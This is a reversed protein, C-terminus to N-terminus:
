QRQLRRVTENQHDATGVRANLLDEVRRAGDVFVHVGDKASQVEDRCAVRVHARGEGTTTYEKSFSCGPVLDSSTSAGAGRQMSRSSSVGACTSPNTRRTPCQM